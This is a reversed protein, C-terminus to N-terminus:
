SGWTGLARVSYDSLAMIGPLQASAATATDKSRVSM